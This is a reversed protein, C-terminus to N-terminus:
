HINKMLALPIQILSMLNFYSLSLLQIHLVPMLLLLPELGQINFIVIHEAYVM